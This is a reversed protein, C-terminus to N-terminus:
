AAASPRAPKAAQCQRRRANRRAMDRARLDDSSMRKPKAAFMRVLENITMPEADGRPRTFAMRGPVVRLTQIVLELADATLDDGIELYQPEADDCGIIVGIRRAELKLRPLAGKM